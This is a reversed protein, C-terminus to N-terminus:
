EALRIVRMSLNCVVEYNITHARAALASANLEEDDGFLLVDDGVRVACEEGDAPTVDVMFQDMCIRGIQRYYKGGIGVLCGTYNRLFGDAYGAGVTAVIMECEATFTAGYSIKDGPHVRHLHLVTSTLRMVPRFRKDPKGNPMLGYLIVGARVADFYAEPLALIAASNACHCIGPDVGAARLGDIVARFRRLQMRTYDGPKEMGSVTKGDLLEDDACSFHTFVGCLRLAPDAALRVIARVTEDAHAEDAPFGVRNMGTDLKVHVSLAADSGTKERYARVADSLSAADEESVVAATVGMEIMDGVNVPLIHSLILIDPTRGHKEELRRLQAAEVESSVAFFDCGAEGLTSSVAEIGHGYGDAKVVCIVRPKQPASEALSRVVAYNQRLADTLIVATNKYKM